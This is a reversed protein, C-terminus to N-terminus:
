TNWCFTEYSTYLEVNDTKWTGIIKDTCIDKPKGKSGTQKFLVQLAIRYKM